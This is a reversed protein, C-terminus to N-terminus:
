CGSAHGIRPPERIAARETARGVMPTSQTPLNNPVANLSRLVPFEDPLGDAVVQFLRETGSLDRLRHEGLDRLQIESPLQREVTERTADSVLSRDVTPLPWSGHRAISMWASTIPRRLARGEGTHLGIRLRVVAEDPWEERALDRQIAVAASVSDQARPFVAFFSDGETSVEVGGLAAFTDRVIQRHRQLVDAIRM